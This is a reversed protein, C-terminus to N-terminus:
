HRPPRSLGRRWRGNGIVSGTEPGRCTKIQSRQGRGGGQEAWLPAPVRGERFCPPDKNQNWAQPTHFLTFDLGRLGHSGLPQAKFPHSCSHGRGRGRGRGRGHGRGRQQFCSIIDNSGEPTRSPRKERGSGLAPLGFAERRRALPRM